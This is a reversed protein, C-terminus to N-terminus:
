VTQPTKCGLACHLYQENFTTIWAELAAILELPCTWERLWLCEEKLIRMLRETDAHGKPNNYSTFAQRSEVTAHARMFTAATSQCGTDSMLTLGQGCAGVSFQRNVAIDLVVLRHRAACPTGAYYGVIKKAYWGLIVVIYVWDFREVLVKTMDIGGV